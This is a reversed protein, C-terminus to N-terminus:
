LAGRGGKRFLHSMLRYALLYGAFMPIGVLVGVGAIAILLSLPLIVVRSFLEESAGAVTYFTVAVVALVGVVAALWTHGRSRELGRFGAWAGPVAGAILSFVAVSLVM